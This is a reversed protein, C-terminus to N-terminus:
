VLASPREAEDIVALGRLDAAQVGGPGNRSRGPPSRRCGLAGQARGRRRRRGGPLGGLHAPRRAVRESAKAKELADKTKKTEGDAREAEAKADKEGKDARKAEGMAVDAQWLAVGGGITLVVFYGFLWLWSADPTGDSQWVAGIMILNALAVGFCGLAM